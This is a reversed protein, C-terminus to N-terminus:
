RFYFDRTRLAACVGSLVRSEDSLGIRQLRGGLIEAHPLHRHRVHDHYEGRADFVVHV